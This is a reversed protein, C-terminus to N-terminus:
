VGTRSLSRRNNSIDVARVVKEEFDDMNYVDGHVHVETVYTAADPLMGSVLGTSYGAQTTPTTANWEALAGKWVTPVNSMAATAANVEDTLADFGLGLEELLDFFLKMEGTIEDGLTLIGELEAETIMGDIVADTIANSLEDMLPKIVASELFATILANRTTMLLNNGFSGLFDDFTSSDFASRFLGQVDGISTGLIQKITEAAEHAGQELAERWASSLARIQEDLARIYAPDAQEEIAERRAEELEEMQRTFDRTVDSDSLAALAAAYEELGMAGTAFARELQSAATSAMLDQTARMAAEIEEAYGKVQRMERNWQQTREYVAEASDLLKDYERRAAAYDDSDLALTIRELANQVETSDMFGAIIQEQIVEDIGVDFAKRFETLDVAGFASALGGAVQEAIGTLRKVEVEDIVAKTGGFLGALGGRSVRSTNMDAFAQVLERSAYRSSGAIGDVQEQIQRLGNSLDGLISQVFGGIAAFAEGMAPGGILTAIGSGVGILGSLLENADFGDAFAGKFAEVADTAANFGAAVLALQADAREAEDTVSNFAVIAQHLDAAVSLIDGGLNGVTSALERLAANTELEGVLRLAEALEEASIVGADFAAQIQERMEDFSNSGIFEQISREVGRFADAAAKRAAALGAAFAARSGDSERFAKAVTRAAGEVSRIGAFSKVSDAVSKDLRTFEAVLNQVGVALPDIGGDLLSNIATEYARAKLANVDIREGFAAAQAEALALEERLKEYVDTFDGGQGEDPAPQVKMQQAALWRQLRETNEAAQRAADDVAQLQAQVGRYGDIQAQIALEDERTFLTPLAEAAIAYGRLMNQHQRHAAALRELRAEEQRAADDLIRQEREAERARREADWGFREDFRYTLGGGAGEDPQLATVSAAVEGLARTAAQTIGDALAGGVTKGFEPVDTSATSAFGDSAGRTFGESVTDALELTFSDGVLATAIAAIGENALNQATNHYIRGAEEAAAVIASGDLTIDTDSLNSLLRGMGMLYQPSMVPFESIRVFEDIVPRMQELQAIFTGLGAGLSAAASMAGQAVAGLLQVVGQVLRGFRVLPDLWAAVQARFEDGAEGTEVFRDAWGKVANAANQM